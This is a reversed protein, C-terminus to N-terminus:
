TRVFIDDEQESNTTAASDLSRGHQHKTQNHESLDIMSYEPNFLVPKETRNHEAAQTEPTGNMKSFSKHYM